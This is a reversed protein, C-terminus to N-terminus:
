TFVLYTNNNGIYFSFLYKANVIDYVDIISTTNFTDPDDNLALLSSNVFLWQKYVSTQNNVVFPPSALTRSNTSKITAIKIKAKSTTDITNIRAVVNLNTDMVIFQNRYRYTYVLRDIEKSFRMTGDVCFVGDIQKELIEPHFKARLSDPTLKGLMSENTGM